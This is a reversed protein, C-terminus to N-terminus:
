SLKESHEPYTNEARAVDSQDRAGAQGLDTMVDGAHVDVGVLDIAEIFATDRDVLGPELRHNTVINVTSAQMEGGIRRLRKGIGFHDENGHARGRVLVAARVELVNELHGLGDTVVDASGHDHGVLGRHRHTGGFLDVADNALPQRGAALRERDFDDGIGFEQLLASGDIVAHPGIPDDHSRARLLRGVPEPLQIRGEIAIVVAQDDHIHARRLQRLIRGVGHQGGLDTEHVFHGVHGLADAGIDFHNALPDAGIRADAPMKDIGARSVAAGAKGLVNAGQGAGRTLM